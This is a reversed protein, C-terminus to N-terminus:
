AMALIIVPSGFQFGTRECRPLYLRGSIVNKILSHADPDTQQAHGDAQRAARDHLPSSMNMGKRCSPGAIVLFLPPGEMYSISPGGGRRPASALRHSPPRHAARCGGPIPCRLFDGTARRGRRERPKGQSQGAKPPSLIEVAM